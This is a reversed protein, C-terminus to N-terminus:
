WRNPITVRRGYHIKGPQQLTQTHVRFLNARQGALTIVGSGAEMRIHELAGYILNASQGSLTLTGNAAILKRTLRMTVPQGTLTVTGHAVPLTKDGAGSYILNVIQGTLTLTGYAAPM